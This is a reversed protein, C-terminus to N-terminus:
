LSQRFNKEYHHFSSFFPFNRPLKSLANTLEPKLQQSSVGHAFAGWPPFPKNPKCTWMCSMGSPLWPLVWCSLFRSAAASATWPPTSNVSKDKPSAWGPTEYCVSAWPHDQGCLPLCEWIIWGDLFHALRLWIPPLLMKNVSMEKELMFVKHWASMIVLWCLVYLGYSYNVNIKWKLNRM